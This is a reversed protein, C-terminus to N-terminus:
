SQDLEDEVSRELSPTQMLEEEGALGLFARTLGQTATELHDMFQGRAFRHRPDSEDDGYLGALLDELMRDLAHLHLHVLEHLVVEDLHRPPVAENVLVVAMRNCPDVKIDGSKRRDRRVIEVRITWDRLGLVRQWSRLVDLAEAEDLGMAIRGRRRARGKTCPVDASNTRAVPSLPATSSVDPLSRRVRRWWSSISEALSKRESSECEGAETAKGLRESALSLGYVAGVV